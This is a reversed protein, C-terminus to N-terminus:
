YSGTRVMRIWQPWGVRVAPAQCSGLSVRAVAPDTLDRVIAVRGQPGRMIMALYRGDPSLAVGELSNTGVFAAVPPPSEAGASAACCLVLGTLVGVLARM